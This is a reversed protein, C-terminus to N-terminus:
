GSPAAPQSGGCAAALLAPAAIAARTVFARRSTASLTTGPTPTTM